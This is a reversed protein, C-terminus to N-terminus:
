DTPASTVGGLAISPSAGGPIKTLCPNTMLATVQLSRVRAPATEFSKLLDLTGLTSPTGACFFTLNIGINRDLQPRSASLMSVASADCPKGIFVCPKHSEEVAQLGECPSSPAYRSGTRSLLESRSRSLVTKNTWPKSEDMATHLVSAMDERELCYLALATLVGGSSGRFRIDPDAAYGEWIELVPGLELHSGNSGNTPTGTGDVHHGPCIALCATCSACDDFQPRIGVSEVNLLTVQGKDCNFFCAGCGTCLGWDVVDKISRIQTL